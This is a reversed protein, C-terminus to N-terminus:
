GIGGFFLCFPRGAVIICHKLQRKTRNLEFQQFAAQQIHTLLSILNSRQDNRLPFVMCFPRGIYGHTEGVEVYRFSHWKSFICLLINMWYDLIAPQFILFFCKCFTGCVERLCLWCCLVRFGMKSLEDKIEHWNWQVKTGNKHLNRLRDPSKVEFHLPVLATSLTLPLNNAVELM